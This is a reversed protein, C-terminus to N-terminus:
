NLWSASDCSACCYNASDAGWVMMEEAFGQVSSLTESESYYTYTTGGWTVTVGCGNGNITKQQKKSLLSIGQLNLIDNLM